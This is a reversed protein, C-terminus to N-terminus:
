ALWLCRGLEQEREGQQFLEVMGREAWLLHTERSRSPHSADAAKLALKLALHRDPPLELNLSGARSSFQMLDGVHEGVATSLILDLVTRRVRLRAAPELDDLIDMGETQLFPMRTILCIDPTILTTQIDMSEM